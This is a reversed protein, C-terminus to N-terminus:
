GGFFSGIHVTRKNWIDNPRKNWICGMKDGPKQDRADNQADTGEIKQTPITQDNVEVRGKGLIWGKRTGLGEQQPTAHQRPPMQPVKWPCGTPQKQLLLGWFFLVHSDSSTLM